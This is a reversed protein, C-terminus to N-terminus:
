KSISNIKEKAKKNYAIVVLNAAYSGIGLETYSLIVPITSIILWESYIDINWFHLFLPVYILQQITFIFTRFSLSTFNKFISNNFFFM